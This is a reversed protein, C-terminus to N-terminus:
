DTPEYFSKLRLPSPAPKARGLWSWLLNIAYYHDRLTTEALHQNRDYYRRIHAKGIVAPTTVGNEHQQIDNLIAILRRITARRSTKGGHRVYTDARMKVWKEANM